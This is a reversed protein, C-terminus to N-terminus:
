SRSPQITFGSGFRPRRIRYGFARLVEGLATNMTTLVAEYRTVVDEELRDAEVMDLAAADLRGHTLWDITVQRDDDLYVAVGGQHEDSLPQPPAVHFGASALDFRVRDLLLEAQRGEDGPHDDDTPPPTM